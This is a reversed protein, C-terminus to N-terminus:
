HRVERCPTQEPLAAAMTGFHLVEAVGAIVCHVDADFAPARM